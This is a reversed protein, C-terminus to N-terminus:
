GEKVLRVPQGRRCAESLPAVPQNPAAGAQGATATRVLVERPAVAWERLIIAKTVVAAM